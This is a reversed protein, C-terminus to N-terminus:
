EIPVELFFKTGEGPRSEAWVRGGIREMAKRVLALGIGTGPYDEARQLRQFIEFIRDHYAMDFGIGNDKVELIVKDGRKQGAIEIVPKATNRTFKLANGILNRLALGLGDADAQLTVPPLSVTLSVQRSQIEDAYGLLLTEVFQPLIIRAATMARRELRSYALLDDILRTMQSAGQRINKVFLQGDADLKPGYDELLLRSYGDIGRLPAKLDHSVSYAFAELQANAAKLQETREAVRKELEAADQQVQALLRQIEMEARKRESIDIGVGVFFDFGANEHIVNQGHWEVLFIKGSRSRIRNENITAKREKIIQQFIGALMQHDEEPVFTTLYDKGKIEETSYELAEVLAPNMMLTKGEFDIAVIFAPSTDLLLQSFKQEKRLRDESRALKEEVLKRETIDIYSNFLLRRAASPFRVLRLECLLNKGEANHIMREILLEEGALVREINEQMSKTIPRGDPQTPPYFHQPGVKLLAERSCGFLKEAKSNALIFRYEDVDFVLIAEPATEFLLRFREESERLAEEARLRAELDLFVVCVLLTGLPYILIVPLAINSLVTYKMSAPLTMTLALMCLHVIIGFGYLDLPTVLHPRRRRLTHYAIGIAASSTIVSVGMFAGPGGLWVRYVIAMLAAILATVWGGIFGAISIIISRGDFILGPSIIVPNMMGVVAVAGFLFGSIGQSIWSSYKWRRIIFSYFISLAIILTINNVLGSFIM